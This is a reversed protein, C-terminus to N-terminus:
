PQVEGLKVFDSPLIELKNPTVVWSHDPNQKYKVRMLYGYFEVANSASNTPNSRYFILYVNEDAAHQFKSSSRTLAPGFVGPMTSSTMQWAGYPCEGGQTGLYNVSFVPREQMPVSSDAVFPDRNQLIEVRNSTTDSDTDIHMDAVGPDTGRLIEVVDPMGDKDSDLGLTPNAYLSNIQLMKVDCENIGLANEVSSCTMGSRLTQCATAGGVKQCIGDLVDAVMSRPDLPDTGLKKEEQDSLGDLDSDVQLEGNVRKASLNVMTMIDPRYEISGRVGLLECLANKGSALSTSFNGLFDPEGTDGIRSIVGMYLKVKAIESATPTGKSYYLSHFKINKLNGIAAQMAFTVHSEIGAIYCSEKASASLAPNTVDCGTGDPDKPTGDSLFFVQYNRAQAASIPNTLDNVLMDETCGLGATYSTMGLLGSRFTSAYPRTRYTEYYATETTQINKLEDLANKASQADGFVGDCQFTKAGGVIRVAGATSSFAIVAFQNGVMNGCSSIFQKIADFRSGLYDTATEHKFYWPNGPENSKEWAGINSVSMDIVFVFKTSEAPLLDSRPCATAKFFSDATSAEIVESVRSLKVDACNQFSLVAATIALVSVLTTIKM